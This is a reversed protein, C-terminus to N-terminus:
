WSDCHADNEFLMDGCAWACASCGSLNPVSLTFLKVFLMEYVCECVSCFLFIDVFQFVFLSHAESFKQFVVLCNFFFVLSLSLSHTSFESCIMIYPFSFLFLSSVSLPESLWLCHAGSHDTWDQELGMLEGEAPSSTTTSSPLFLPSATHPLLLPFTPSLM